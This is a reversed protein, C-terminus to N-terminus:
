STSADGVEGRGPPIAQRGPKPAVDALDDALLRDILEIVGAGRDAQTVLDAREKLTPLANAVAVACGCLALFAHDNEADGVGVANHPSLGLEDLAASLGTAKNVGSPLVMVAGKNFIVHLELGLERIVDLVADQHPEWTAVIVRGVSIPGVGRAELAEVFSEPPREGLLKEERGGPRYILAGNEAVVRDFLDLRPFIGMLEDLERGTVLILKRGTERLRHLADLTSDDVHGHHALTGDYDTALRWTDCPPKM